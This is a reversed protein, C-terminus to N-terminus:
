PVTALTRERTHTHTCVHALAKWPPYVTESYVRDLFDDVAASSVVDFRAHLQKNSFPSVDTQKDQM